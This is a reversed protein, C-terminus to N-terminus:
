CVDVVYINLPYLSLVYVYVCIFPFSFSLFPYSRVNRNSELDVLSDYFAKKEIQSPNVHPAKLFITKVSIIFM